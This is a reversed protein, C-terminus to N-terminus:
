LLNRVPKVAEARVSERLKNDMNLGTHGWLFASDSDTVEGRSDGVESSYFGFDRPIESTMQPGARRVEESKRKRSSATKSTRSWDGCLLGHKGERLGLELQGRLRPHEKQYDGPENGRGEKFERGLLPMPDRRSDSDLTGAQLGLM